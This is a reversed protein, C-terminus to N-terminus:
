KHCPSVPNAISAINSKTFIYWHNKGDKLWVLNELCYVPDPLIGERLLKSLMTIQLQCEINPMNRGYFGYKEM